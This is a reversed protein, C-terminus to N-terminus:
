PSKSKAWSVTRHLFGVVIVACECNTASRDHQVTGGIILGGMLFILVFDFLTMQAGPRRRLVRVMILLIFYGAIARLITEM